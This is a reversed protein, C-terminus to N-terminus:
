VNKFFFILFFFFGFFSKGGHSTLGIVVQNASLHSSALWKVVAAGMILLSTYTTSNVTSGLGLHM